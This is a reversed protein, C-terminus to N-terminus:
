QSLEEVLRELENLTQAFKAGTEEIARIRDPRVINPGFVIIPKGKPNLASTQLRLAQGIKRGGKGHTVEIIVKDLEVDVEGVRKSHIFIEEQFGKLSDRFRRGVRGALRVDPHASQTAARVRQFLSM